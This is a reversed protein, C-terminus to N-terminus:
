TITMNEAVYNWASKWDWCTYKTNGKHKEFVVVASPFPAGSQAGVFKVRGRLFLVEKARCVYKHWYLTDTRAPVLCVVRCGIKSEDLAKKVWKGLERGYPPNLWVCECCNWDASLADQWLYPTAKFNQHNAAADLGFPGYAFNLIEFLDNPTEWDGTSSSFHLQKNM